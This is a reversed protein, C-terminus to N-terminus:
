LIMTCVPIVFMFTLMRWKGEKGYHSLFVSFVLGSAEIVANLFHGDNSYTLYYLETENLFSVILSLRSATDPALECLLKELSTFM